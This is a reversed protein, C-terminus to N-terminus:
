GQAIFLEYDNKNESTVTLDDDIIWDDFKQWPKKQPKFVRPRWFREELGAFHNEFFKESNYSDTGSKQYVVSLIKKPQTEDIFGRLLLQMTKRETVWGNASRPDFIKEQEM